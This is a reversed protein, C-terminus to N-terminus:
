CNPGEICVIGRIIQLAQLAERGRARIARNDDLFINALNPCGGEVEGMQGGNGEEGGLGGDTTETALFDRFACAGDDGIRNGRLDLTELQLMATTSMTSVAAARATRMKGGEVSLREALALAGENGIANCALDLERLMPMHALCDAVARAGTDGIGNFGLYFEDLCPMGGGAALGEAVSTAGCDGLQNLHLDLKLLRKLSIFGLAGGIHLAAITGLDNQALSLSILPASCAGCKLVECLVAIHDEGEGGGGGYDDGGIQNARVYLGQLGSRFGGRELAQALALCGESRLKNDFLNLSRVTQFFNGEEAALRGLTLIINPTLEASSLDLVRLAKCFPLRRTIIDEVVVVTLQKSPRFFSMGNSILNTGNEDQAAGLGRAASTLRAVDGPWM